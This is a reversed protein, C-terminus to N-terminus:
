ANNGDDARKKFKKRSWMQIKKAFLGNFFTEDILYVIFCWIGFILSASFIVLLIGGIDM